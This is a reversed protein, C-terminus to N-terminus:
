RNLCNIKIYNLYEIDIKCIDIKIIWKENINNIAFFLPCGNLNIMIGNLKDLIFENKCMDIYECILLLKNKNCQDLKKSSNINNRIEEYKFVEMPMYIKTFFSNDIYNSNSYIHEFILNKGKSKIKDKSFSNITKKTIKNVIDGLRICYGMIFIKYMYEQRYKADIKRLYCINRLFNYIM